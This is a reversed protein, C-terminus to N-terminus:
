LLNDKPEWDQGDCPIYNQSVHEDYLTCLQSGKEFKKCNGCLTSEEFEKMRSNFVQFQRFAPYAALFWFSFFAIWWVSRNDIQEVVFFSLMMIIISRLLVGWIISGTTVVPTSSYNDEVTGEQFQLLNTIKEFINM